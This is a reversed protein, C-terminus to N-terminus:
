QTGPQVKHSHLPVFLVNGNPLLVGGSYKHNASETASIDVTRFTDTSADFVGV